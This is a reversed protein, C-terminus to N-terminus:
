LADFSEYSLIHKEIAERRLKVKTAIDAGAPTPDSLGDKTSFVIWLWKLDGTLILRRGEPVNWVLNEPEKPWINDLALHAYDDSSHLDSLMALDIYQGGCTQHLMRLACLIAIIGHLSSYSDAMACQMETPHGGCMEEQRAILGAEAQVVPAYAARQRE